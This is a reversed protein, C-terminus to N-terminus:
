RPLSDTTFTRRSLPLAPLSALRPVEQRAKKGQPPMENRLAGKLYQDILVAWQSLLINLKLFPTAPYFYPRCLEDIQNGSLTQKYSFWSGLLSAPGLSVPQPQPPVTAQTSAFDIDPPM